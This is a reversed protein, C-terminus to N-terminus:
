LLLHSHGAAWSQPLQTLVSLWFKAGETVPSRAGSPRAHPGGRGAGIVLHAVKVTV